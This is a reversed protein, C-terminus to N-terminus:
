KPTFLLTHWGKDDQYSLVLQGYIFSFQKVNQLAQLFRDEVQMMPQPCMMRTAGIPGVALNRPGKGKINGFYRNCGALGSFRDAAFVIDAKVEVPIPEDWTLHTLSWSRALDQVTIHGLEKSGTEQLKGGAYRYRKHVKLSPCCAAEQPGAMVLDLELEGEGLRLSRIMVRDGLKQTAVNEYHNNVTDVIVLYTYSGSGGSSETLFGAAEEVGDGDLDGVVYLQEAFQVRPRAAGQPVFPQGEYSGHKLTVPDEYIGYYTLNKLTSADLPTPKLSSACGPLLLSFGLLLYWLANPLIQM